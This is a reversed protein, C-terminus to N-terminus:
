ILTDQEIKVKSNIKTVSAITEWKSSGLIFIIRYEFFAPKESKKLEGIKASEYKGNM